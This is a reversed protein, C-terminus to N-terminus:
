VVSKRDKMRFAEDYTYIRLDKLPLTGFLTAEVTYRKNYTQIYQTWVAEKKDFFKVEPVENLLVIDQAMGSDVLFPRKITLTDGDETKIKLPLIVCLPYPNYTNQFSLWYCNDPSKFDKIEHIELYNNEFNLEWIHTTDNKPINFLGDIDPNWSTRKYPIIYFFNYTFYTQGIKIQVSSNYGKIPDQIHSWTSGSGYGKWDPTDNWAPYPHEACFSSDFNFASLAAGSDFIMNAVLTDNIYVPIFICRDGQPDFSFYSKNELQPNNENQKKTQCGTLLLFLLFILGFYTKKM